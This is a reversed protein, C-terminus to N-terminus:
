KPHGLRAENPLFSGNNTSHTCGTLDDFYINAQYMSIMSFMCLILIYTTPLDTTSNLSFITIWIEIKRLYCLQGSGGIVLYYKILM